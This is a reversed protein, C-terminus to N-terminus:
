AHYLLSEMVAEDRDYQPDIEKVMLKIPPIIIKLLM